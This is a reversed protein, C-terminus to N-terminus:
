LLYFISVPVFFSGRPWAIGAPGHRDEEGNDGNEGSALEEEGEDMEEDEEEEEIVELGEMQDEEEEEVEGEEEGDMEEDEEEAEEEGDMEEDEEEAEEEEEEDDYEEEEEFVMSDMVKESFPYWIPIAGPPRVRSNWLDAQELGREFPDIGYEVSALRGAKVEEDLLKKVHGASDTRAFEFVMARGWADFEMDRYVHERIVELWLGRLPNQKLYQADVYEAPGKIVLVRSRGNREGGGMGDPNGPNTSFKAMAIRGDFDLKGDRIFKWLTYAAARDWFTITASMGPLPPNAGQSAQPRHIMGAEFIAGGFLAIRPAAQVLRSLLSSTTTKRPLNYIKITRSSAKDLSTDSDSSSPSSM